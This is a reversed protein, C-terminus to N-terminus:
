WLPHQAIVAIMMGLFFCFAVVIVSAVFAVAYKVSNEVLTQLAFYAEGRQGMYSVVRLYDVHDAWGFAAVSAALGIFITALAGPLITTM